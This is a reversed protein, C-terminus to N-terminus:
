EEGIREIAERLRDDHRIEIQDMLVELEKKEREAKVRGEQLCGQEEALSKVRDQLYRVEEQLMM